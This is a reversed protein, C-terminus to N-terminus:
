SGEYGAGEASGAQRFVVRLYKSVKHDFCIQAAAIGMAHDPQRKVNTAQAGAADIGFRINAHDVFARRCRQDVAVVAHTMQHHATGGVQRDFLRFRCSDAPHARAHAVVRPGRRKVDRHREGVVHDAQIERHAAVVVQRRPAATFAKEAGIRHRDVAMTSSM